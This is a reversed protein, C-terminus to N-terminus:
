VNIELHVNLNIVATVLELVHNVKKTIHSHHQKIISQMNKTCSYSVKINNKNFIKHYRHNNNFHRKVLKLFAEGVKTEVSRDYPSNFWIINKSRNHNRNNNGNTNYYSLKESYGCQGLVENYYKSAEDFVTKNCSNTSLRNSISKPIQKIINPPHNSEVNVYLPKNNPKNYPRYSSDNLNFTIDLYDVIKLNSKIDIKLGVSKMIKTIEKRFIDAQRATKNRLLALGDDRYLGIEDDKFVNNTLHLLYLGVIECVEAGDNSGMTIDFEQNGHNKIWPEENHYLWSKRCHFIANIETENINVNESAFQIANRLLERLNFPLVRTYRLNLVFM